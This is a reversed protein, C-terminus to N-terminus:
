DDDDYEENEPVDMMRYMHDIACVETDSLDYYEVDVAPEDPPQYRVLIVNRIDENTIGEDKLNLWSALFTDILDIYEQKVRITM